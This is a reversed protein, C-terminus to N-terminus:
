LHREWNHRHTNNNKESLLFFNLDRLLNFLIRGYELQNEAMFAMAPCSRKSFCTVHMHPQSWWPLMSHACKGLDYYANPISQCINRIINVRYYGLNGAGPNRDPKATHLLVYRPQCHSNTGQGICGTFFLLYKQFAILLVEVLMELVTQSAACQASLRSSGALLFLLHWQTDWSTNLQCSQLPGEMCGLHPTLERLFQGPRAPNWWLM